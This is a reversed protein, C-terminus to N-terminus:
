DGSKVRMAIMTMDDFQKHYQTFEKVEEHIARVMESASKLTNRKIADLLRGETYQEGAKNIADTFGDTFFVLWDAPELRIIEEHINRRFIIGKDMGLGIGEPTIQMICGDREKFHLVPTHGARCITVTKAQLDLCALTLTVFSSRDIMNYLHDNMKILIERPTLSSTVLSQLIGKTLTMYIAAPMGKGSVDGIVIFLQSNEGSIFDYYDGGIEEAPLCFGVIEFGEPQPNATPLLKMQMQRAIELEKAMRERELQHQINQISVLHFLRGKMRFQTSFVALHVVEADRQFPVVLGEGKKQKMLDSVIGNNLIGLQRINRLQSIKFLEQAAKNILQVDGNQDFVILGSSIHQVVTQLYQYQEERESRTQRLVNLAERFGTSLEQFASGSISPSFSSSYDSTKIAMLFRGLDRSIREVYRILKYVQYISLAILFILMAFYHARVQVYFVLYINAVILLIRASINIRFNKLISVSSMTISM